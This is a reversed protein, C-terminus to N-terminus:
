MIRMYVPMQQTLGLRTLLKGIRPDVGHELTFVVAKIIRRPKAWALLERLLKVGYGPAKCYFQVVNAQSREYCMMPGVYAMVSGVIVGDQEAVWCFHAPGSVCTRAMEFCRSRSILLGEYPDTELAEIGLEVIQNIDAPAAPRLTVEGTLAVAEM